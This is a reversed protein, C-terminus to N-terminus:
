IQKLFTKNIYKVVNSDKEGLCLLVFNIGAIVVVVVVVVVREGVGWGGCSPIDLETGGSTSVNTGRKSKGKYSVYM